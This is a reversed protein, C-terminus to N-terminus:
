KQANPDGSASQQQPVYIKDGGEVPPLGEAVMIENVTM